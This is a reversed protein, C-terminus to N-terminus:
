RASWAVQYRGRTFAISLAETQPEISRYAGLLGSLVAERPAMAALLRDNDCALRAESQISVACAGEDGDDPMPWTALERLLADAIQARGAARAAQMQMLM